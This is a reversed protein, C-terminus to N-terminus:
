RAMVVAPDIHTVKAIAALASVICMVVTLALLGLLMQSTVIVPLVADSTLYMTALGGLAAVSFGIAASIVAQCLIVRHIYGATSGIARLTAFEALHDKTSAYLTQAVIVTGVVLGLIAGAILAFGAGTSFLWHNRSRTSFDAKTLVESTSLRAAIAARVAGVDAGPTVRVMLHTAEGQGAAVYNRARDLTTFVYPTTTFARIHQTLAAVRVPHGEIQATAGRGSVGLEELYTKDVIVGNPTALDSVSGEVFNWPALGRVPDIGVIVVTAAEGAPKRWEMFGVVFPVVEAVGPISLTVYREGLDLASAEEFSKTGNPIIWLDGSTRDIMASIQRSFGVYLGLQVSVLFISFGIGILTGAFRVGDHLLNRLALTFIM